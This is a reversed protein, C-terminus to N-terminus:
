RSERKVPMQVLKKLDLNGDLLVQSIQDIKKHFERLMESVKILSWSKQSIIIFAKLKIFACPIRTEVLSWNRNSSAM